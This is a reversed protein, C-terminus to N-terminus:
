IRNVNKKILVEEKLKSKRPKLRLRCQCCPCFIGDHQVYRGDCNQCRKAGQLYLQSNGGQREFKFGGESPSIKCLGRCEITM